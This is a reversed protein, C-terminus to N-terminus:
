YYSMNYNYMGNNLAARNLSMKKRDIAHMPVSVRDMNVGGMAKSFMNVSMRRGIFSRGGLNKAFQRLYFMFKM